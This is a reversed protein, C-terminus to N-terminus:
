RGKGTVRVESRVDKVGYVGRAIEEARARARESTVGGTLLVTGSMAQARVDKFDAGGRRLAARVRQQLVDNDLLQGEHTTGMPNGEGCGAVMLGALLLGAIVSRRRM